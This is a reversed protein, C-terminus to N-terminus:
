PTTATDTHPRLQTCVVACLVCFQSALFSLIECRTSKARADISRNTSRALRRRALRVRSSNQAGLQAQQRRQLDSRNKSGGGAERARGLRTTREEISFARAPGLLLSRRGEGSWRRGCRDGAATSAADPPGGGPGGGQSDTAKPPRNPRQQHPHHHPPLSMTMPGRRGSETRAREHAPITHM